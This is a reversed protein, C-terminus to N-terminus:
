GGEAAAWFRELEDLREYLAPTASAHDGSLKVFPLGSEDVLKQVGPYFEDADGCILWVPIKLATLDDRADEVEWMANWCHKIGRTLDEDALINPAPSPRGNRVFMDNAFEFVQEAKRPPMVEVSNDADYGAVILSRLRHPQHRAMSCGAWGGMSYGFYHATEHDAHELVAAVHGKRRERTYRAPNDLKDSQGHGLSDLALIEHKGKFTGAM